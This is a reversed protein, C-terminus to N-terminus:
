RKFESLLIGTAVAANLSETEQTKGFKPISIRNNVLEELVNSIGNAENGILLIANNDLSKKYVNEGDMFAGYVIAEKDLLDLLNTYVVAVRNLSGM